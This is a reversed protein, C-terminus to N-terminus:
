DVVAYRKAQEALDTPQPQSPLLGIIAGLRM